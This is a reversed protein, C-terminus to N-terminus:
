LHTWAQSQCIKIITTFQCTVNLHDSRQGRADQLRQAVDQPRGAAKLGVTCMRHSQVSYFPYVM